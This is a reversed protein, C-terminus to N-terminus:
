RKMLISGPITKTKDLEVKKSFIFVGAKAKGKLRVTVNDKRVLGLAKMMAGDELDATFSGEVYNNSKRKIKIKKDLSVKGFYDGEVYLDLESPKVKIGFWNANEIIGGATFKVQQGDMKQLSVKEGGNFAPEHFTCSEMGAALLILFFLNRM